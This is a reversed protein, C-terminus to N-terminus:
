PKALHRNKPDYVEKTDLNSSLTMVRGGIVYMMGNVVSSALHERGTPMSAKKQWSDTAPDYAENVTFAIKNAGGV